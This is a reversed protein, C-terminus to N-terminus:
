TAGEDSHRPYGDLAALDDATVFGGTVMHDVLHLRRDNARRGAVRMGAVGLQDLRRCLHDLKRNFKADSWGLRRALSRNSPLRYRDDPNRLRPEALAVVLMRQEDTLPLSMPEFTATACGDPAPPAPLAASHPLSVQLEYNCSGASFCVTSHSATLPVRSGGPLMASSGGAIVRITTWSGLNELWWMGGHAVFRGVRRHLFPNSDIDLEAGRGFAMGATNTPDIAVCHGVFTVTLM